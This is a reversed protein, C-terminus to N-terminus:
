IRPVLRWLTKSSLSKRSDPFKVYTTVILCSPSNSYFVLKFHLSPHHPDAELLAFNKDALEQVGSPLQRYCQWFRPLTLHKM